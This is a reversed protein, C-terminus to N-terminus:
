VRWRRPRCNSVIKACRRNRRDAGNRRKTLKFAAVDTILMGYSM